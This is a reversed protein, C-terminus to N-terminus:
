TPWTRFLECHREMLAGRPSLSRGDENIQCKLMRRGRGQNTQVRSRNQTNNFIINWRQGNAAVALKM